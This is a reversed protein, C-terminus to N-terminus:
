SYKHRVTFLLLTFSCLVGKQLSQSITSERSNISISHLKDTARLNSATEKKFMIETFFKHYWACHVSNGGSSIYVKVCWVVYACTMRMPLFRFEIPAIFYEYFFSHDIQINILVM